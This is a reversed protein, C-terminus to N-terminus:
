LKPTIPGPFADAWARLVAVAAERVDGGGAEARLSREHAPRGLERYYRLDEFGHTAVDVSSAAYVVRPIQAWYCGSLCMPCPESSSYMVADQMLHRGLRAGAARLAIMEAHATPDHLRMVSSVGEGVVDAGGIVILAGFPTNGEVEIGRRSVEIAARLFGLDVPSLAASGGAADPGQQQPHDAESM